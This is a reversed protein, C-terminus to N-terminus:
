RATERTIVRVIEDGRAIKDVVDMGRVVRGFVTYGGDLHPQPSHTVFWQSGGTDKGSLAMGAAGRDYPVINMECRIAYGPGGSGTGTPDGTQVVFNPVVRHFTIGDFYKKKALQVFNDVTLPADEPLLEITFTGRNTMVDATVKKRMRSLARKYDADTYQSKVPEARLGTVDQGAARLLAIARKRALHDWTTTATRIAAYAEPTKQKALSDLITLAADDDPEKLAAPLADLLAKGISANPEIQGLADAAATRVAVSKHALAKFLTAQLDQPRFEAYSRLLTALYAAEAPSSQEAARVIHSDIQAKLIRTAAELTEPKKLQPLAALVRTIEALAEATAPTCETCPVPIEM